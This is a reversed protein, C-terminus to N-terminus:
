VILFTYPGKDTAAKKAEEIQLLKRQKSEQKAKEEKEANYKIAPLFFFYDVYQSYQVEVCQKVISLRIILSSFTRVSSYNSLTIITM